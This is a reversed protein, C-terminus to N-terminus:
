DRVCAACREAITFILSIVHGGEFMGDQVTGYIITM